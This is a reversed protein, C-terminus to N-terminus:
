ARGAPAGGPRCCAPVATAPLPPPYGPWRRRLRRAPANAAAAGARALLQGLPTRLLALALAIGVVDALLDFADADEPAIPWQACEILFGFLLLLAAIAQRGRRQRYINGWWLMLATFAVVHLLKDGDPIVLALRSLHRLAPLLAACSVGLVLLVGLVSWGRHWHLRGTSPPAAVVASM